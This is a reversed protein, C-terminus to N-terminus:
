SLGTWLGTLALLGLLHLTLLVAGAGLAAAALDFILPWLGVATERSETEHLM